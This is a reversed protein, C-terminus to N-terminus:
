RPSSIGAHALEHHLPELHEVACHVRELVDRDRDPLALDDREDARVTGALRRQQAGDRAQDRGLGAADHELAPVDRADRRVLDHRETQRLAGLTAHHERVQRDLVVEFETGVTALVPAPM